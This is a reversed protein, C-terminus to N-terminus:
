GPEAEFAIDPRPTAALRARLGTLGGRMMLAHNARFLPRCPVALLRMLRKRVVVEQEFVLRTGPHAGQPDAAATADLVTWRVWGELDGAMAVELVRRRPDQRTSRATVRLDYPLVSRFRLDGSTDGTQRVERIQPWWEPYLDPRELLRYVADPAADLHWVTRFRYHSWRDM